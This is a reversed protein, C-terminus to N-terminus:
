PGTSLWDAVVRGVGPQYPGSGAVAAQFDNAQNMGHDADPIEKFTVSGPNARQIMDRLIEHDHRAAIYDAKGWLLLARGKFDQWATPINLAYLEENYARSRLDFIGVYEGCAPKKEAAQATTLKDAFYWVACECFDKIFADTRAADWGYAEAITRRTKALYEVFSSGITGYAIIRQVPTRQAIMPAFVGGMSHGIITVDSSDIDPRQKLQRIMEAYGTMENMFSVEGCGTSSRAADGMGPKELRACAFGKRSLGNLLQTESRATDLPSDLAYCGIGGIFVVLPLRGSGKKRQQTLIARQLGNVTRHTTYEVSLDPYSEGPWAILKLKGTVPKKDRLIRYTISSGSQHNALEAIVEVTTGVQIGNLTTLLDGKRWGTKEASGGPLIESLLVAPWDGVGMIRRMDDTVNEMRVGLFVRRPLQEQACAMFTNLVMAWAVVTFRCPIRSNIM